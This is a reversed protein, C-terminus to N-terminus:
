FVFIQNTEFLDIISVFLGLCLLSGLFYGILVGIQDLYKLTGQDKDDFQLELALLEIKKTSLDILSYGLTGCCSVIIDQNWGDVLFLSHNGMVFLGISGM